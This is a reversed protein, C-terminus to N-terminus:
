LHLPRAHGSGDHNECPTEHSFRLAEALPVTKALEGPHSKFWALVMTIVDLGAPDNALPDSNLRRQTLRAVMKAADDHQAATEPAPIAAEVRGGRILYWTSRTQSNVQYVFHYRRRARALDRMHRNLWRFLLYRDRLLAAREFELEAALNEMQQRMNKLMSKDRRTVFAKAGIVAAMYPDEVEASPDAAPSKALCPAHCIGLESRMCGPRALPGGDEATCTRLKFADNLAEAADYLRSKAPLPGCVALYEKSKPKKQQVRFHPASDKTLVLYGHRRRLPHYQVNYRPQWLKILEIERLLTGFEDPLEEWTLMHAAALIRFAKEGYSDARLYSALRSRLCCSKGVYLIQGQADIMAYIGPAKPISRRAETSARLEAVTASGRSVIQLRTTSRTTGLPVLPRPGAGFTQTSKPDAPRLTFM